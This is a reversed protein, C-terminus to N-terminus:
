IKLSFHVFNSKPQPEAGYWAPSSVAGWARLSYKLPAVELPLYPFPSCYGADRGSCDRATAHYGREHVTAITDDPNGATTRDTDTM